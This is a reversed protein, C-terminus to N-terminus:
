AVCDAPQNLLADQRGPLEDDIRRPLDHGSIELAGFDAIRESLAALASAARRSNRTVLSGEYNRASSSSTCLSVPGAITRLARESRNNDLVLRGDALVRLLAEQQRLAYGLASRLLGRQDRVLEYQSAVWCFFTLMLPRLHQDRLQHRQAPPRDRWQQELEFFRRIRFLAERAVACKAIAAEWFKRRAHAWCGVEVRVGPAPDQGDPPKGARQGPPAFLLNYVSKADAQIYGSFDHFMQGVVESTEKPTYEFFVHDRDAIIVFFHGRRCASRTQSPPPQIAVGTADTALCFATRLAEQRAANVVTAGFTAGADELWRSMTGRDIRMGDRAFRDEIRHLPLGDCHKDVLIHALLSPAALCRSLTEKPLPATVLPATVLNTSQPDEGVVRYKVRAMILRRHGGRQWALKSSEEFGIRTAKGAKCLEEMKPDTLEIRETPLAAENLDRRGTPRRRRDGPSPTPPPPPAPPSAVEPEKSLEQGLQDLVALKGAFELELQGTDIREAKAVFIRRKLLELELRLQEYAQRLQDRERTLQELLTQKASLEGKLRAVQALLGEATGIPTTEASESM